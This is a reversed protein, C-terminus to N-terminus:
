PLKIEFKSPISTNGPPRYHHRLGDNLDAMLKTGTETGDSTWLESGDAPAPPSRPSRRWV